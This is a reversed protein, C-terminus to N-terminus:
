FIDAKVEQGLEVKEGKELRVERLTRMPEIKVKSYHGSLPKNVLSKRKEGFGIQIGNYGDNEKTKIQIVRCPGAKVITVPVVDGNADFVQSM